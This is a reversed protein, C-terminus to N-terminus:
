KAAAGPHKKEWERVDRRAKDFIREYNEKLMKDNTERTLKKWLPEYQHFVRLFSQQNPPAVEDSGFLFRDPYRNFLDAAIRTAEPSSVIYKAVESWSIDFYVHKFAPDKLMTELMAAHKKVPHIIRGLGLHAWIITTGPHRRFLDKLQKLFVPDVGEKQFPTDVDNHLMVVLGAEGAFDFIRDLAPDTLSPVDGAIKSSVFEKHITFEGIGVFVGPFTKLVRKIHDVGYMDTPNFGTIMPDLRAQEAPTLSKYATAIYADTFSYYYLPADSDLYYTPGKETGSVRASWQQQLPLGFLVARGVKDGMIDLFKRIDTGEQIYNTLHIHADNLLYESKPGASTPRTGGYLILAAVACAAALYITKKRM